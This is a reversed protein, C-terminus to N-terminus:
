FEPQQSGTKLEESLKSYNDDSYLQAKSLTNGLYNYHSRQSKVLFARESYSSGLLKTHDGAPLLISRELTYKLSSNPKEM